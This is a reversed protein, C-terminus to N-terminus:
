ATEESLYHRLACVADEIWGAVTEPKFLIQLLAPMTEYLRGLVASLKIEGTGSGFYCEAEAVLGLLIRKARTSLGRRAVLVASVALGVACLGLFIPLMVNQM